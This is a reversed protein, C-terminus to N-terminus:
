RSPSTRHERRGVAEVAAALGLMIAVGFTTGVALYVAGVAWLPSTAVASATSIWALTFSAPLVVLAVVFHLLRYALGIVPLSCLFAGVGQWVEYPGTKEGTTTSHYGHHQYETDWAFWGFWLGATLLVILILCAGQELPPRHRNRTLYM